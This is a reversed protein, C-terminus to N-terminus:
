ESGKNLCVLSINVEFISGLDKGIQLNDEDDREYVWVLDVRPLIGSKEYGKLKDVLMFLQKTSSTNIYHLASVLKFPETRLMEKHKELWELVPDFVELANAPYCAGSFSLVNTEADYHIEPSSESPSRHFPAIGAPENM